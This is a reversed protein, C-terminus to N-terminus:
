LRPFTSSLARFYASFYRIANFILNGREFHKVKSFKSISNADRGVGIFGPIRPDCTTPRLSSPASWILGPNFIKVLFSWVFEVQHDTSGQM